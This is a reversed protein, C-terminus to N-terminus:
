ARLAPLLEDVSDISADWNLSGEGRYHPKDPTRVRVAFIGQLQAGELERDSGDGVYICSSAPLEIAQLAAAYVGPDPKLAGVECSLVTATLYDSLGLDEPLARMASSGNSVLVTRIGREALRTLTQVAGPKTHVSASWLNEEGAALEVLTKEDVTVGLQQAVWRIRDRPTWSVDTSARRRSRAWAAKFHEHEVGLTASLRM